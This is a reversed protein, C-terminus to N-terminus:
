INYELMCSTPGLLKSQIWPIVMTANLDMENKSQRINSLVKELVNAVNNVDLAAQTLVALLGLVVVRFM